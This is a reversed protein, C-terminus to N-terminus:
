LWFYHNTQILGLEVHTLLTVHINGVQASDKLVIWHISKNLHSSMLLFFFVTGFSWTIKNQFFIRFAMAFVSSENKIYM